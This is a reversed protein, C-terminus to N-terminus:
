LLVSIIFVLVIGIIIAMFMMAANLCGEDLPDRDDGGSDADNRPVEPMNGYIGYPDIFNGFIYM